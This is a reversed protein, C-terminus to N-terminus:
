SVMWISAQCVTTTFKCSTRKSKFFSISRSWQFFSKIWKEAPSFFIQVVPYWFPSFSWWLESFLISVVALHVLHVLKWKTNAKERTRKNAFWKKVQQITIGLTQSLNESEADSPYKNMAFYNALVNKQEATFSCTPRIGFASLINQFYVFILFFFKWGINIAVSVVSVNVFLRM